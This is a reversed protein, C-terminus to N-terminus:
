AVAASFLYGLDNATLLEVVSEGVRVVTGGRLGIDGDEKSGAIRTGFQATLGFTTGREATALSDSYMLSAFKGWVRSLTATQGPKATNLWSEGVMYEGLEFLEAIRERSAVGASTNGTGFLAALIKPHQALKRHVARGVVLKNPRMVMGDMADMIATYPDSNTYDSWQSTGSLTAKNAAAYNSAGFVLTSARVERDLEILNTVYETAKNLPSYNPPANMMDAQPVADELGYDITSGSTETASFEVRNVRSTRGVRTDPLTFGDALTHKLYKFDAKGVPVRPLVKDAILMNNRYEIAIATLDPQIPFPAQAGM